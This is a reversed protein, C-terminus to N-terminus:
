FHGSQTQIEIGTRCTDKEFTDVKLARVKPSILIGLFTKHNSLIPPELTLVLQILLDKDNGGVKSVVFICVKRIELFHHNSHVLSM